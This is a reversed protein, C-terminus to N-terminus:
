ATLRTPDHQTQVPVCTTAWVRGSTDPGALIVSNRNPQTPNPDHKEVPGLAAWQAWGM